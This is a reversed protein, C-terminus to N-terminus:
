CLPVKQPLQPYSQSYLAPNRTGPTTEDRALSFAHIRYFYTFIFLVVVYLIFKAHNSRVGSYTSSKKNESAETCLYIFLAQEEVETVPPLM